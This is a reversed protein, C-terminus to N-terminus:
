RKERKSPGTSPTRQWIVERNKGLTVKDIGKRLKIKLYFPLGHDDGALKQTAIINISTGDNKIAIEDIVLASNGSSDGSVILYEDADDAVFKVQMGAIQDATLDCNTCASMVLMVVSLLGIKLIRVRMTNM